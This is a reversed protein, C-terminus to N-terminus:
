RKSYNTVSTMEEETLKYESKIGDMDYIKDIIESSVGRKLDDKNIGFLYSKIVLELFKRDESKTLDFEELKNGLALKALFVNTKDNFNM